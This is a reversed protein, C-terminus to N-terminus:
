QRRNQDSEEEALLSALTAQTVPSEDDDALLRRALTARIATYEEDDLSDLLLALQEARRSTGARKAKEEGSSAGLRFHYLRVVEPIGWLFITGLVATLVAFVTLATVIDGSGAFGSAAELTDVADGVAALIISWLVFTFFSKTTLAGCGGARMRM